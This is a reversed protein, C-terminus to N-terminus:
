SEEKAPERRFRFKPEEGKALRKINPIHKVYIFVAVLGFFGLFIPSQRTLLGFIIMFPAAVLSSLSVIQTFAMCVLFVGFASVGVLPATGLLAGLGTAIGKGGKFGAFPSFLHGLIALGAAVVGADGASLPLGPQGALLQICLLPPVAGKLMDLLFVTVGWVPGLGRVVNTAGINGSGVQRLDIGKIRAALLGFPVSGLLFAGVFLAAMLM